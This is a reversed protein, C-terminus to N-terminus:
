PRKSQGMQHGLMFAMSALMITIVPYIRAPSFSTLGVLGALSGFFVVTASVLCVIRAIGVPGSWMKRDM